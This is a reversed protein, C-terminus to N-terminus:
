NTVRLVNGKFCLHHKYSEPAITQLLKQNSDMFQFIKIQAYKFIIIHLTLGVPKQYLIRRIIHTLRIHM